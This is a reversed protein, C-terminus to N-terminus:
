EINLASSINNLYTRTEKVTEKNNKKTTQFFNNYRIIKGVTENELLQIINENQTHNNVM